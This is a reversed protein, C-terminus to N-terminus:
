GGICTTDRALTGLYPSLGITAIIALMLTVLVLAPAGFAWTQSLLGPHQLLRNMLTLVLLGELLMPLVLFGLFLWVRHRAARLAGYATRLPYALVAFILLSVVIRAVLPNAFYDRAFGLEDGGGFLATILRALPLSAFVLCLGWSVTRPSRSRGIILAGLWITIYNVMPGAFTTIFNISTTVNCSSPLAAVRNFDRSGFEGCSLAGAIMHAFEHLEHFVHRLAIFALVFGLSLVVPYARPHQDTDHMPQADHM